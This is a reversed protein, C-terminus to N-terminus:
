KFESNHMEIIRMNSGCARVNLSFLFTAAVAVFIIVFILHCVCALSCCFFACAFYISLFLMEYLQLTLRVKLVEMTVNGIRNIHAMFSLVSACAVHLYKACMFIFLLLLFSLFIFLFQFSCFSLSYFLLFTIKAELDLQLKEWKIPANEHLNMSKTLLTRPASHVRANLSWTKSTNQQHLQQM